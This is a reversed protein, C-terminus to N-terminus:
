LYQRCCVPFKPYPFCYDVMRTMEFAILLIALFIGEGEKRGKYQHGEKPILFAWWVLACDGDCFSGQSTIRIKELIFFISVCPHWIIHCWSNLLLYRFYIISFCISDLPLISNEDLHGPTCESSPYGVFM